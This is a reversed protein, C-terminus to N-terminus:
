NFRFQRLGWGFRASDNRAMSGFNCHFCHGFTVQDMKTEIAICSYSTRTGQCIPAPTVVGLLSQGSRLYDLFGVYRGQGCGSSAQKPLQPLLLHGFSMWIALAAITVAALRGLWIPLPREGPLRPGKALYLKEGRRFSSIAFYIAFGVFISFFIYHFATFQEPQTGHGM